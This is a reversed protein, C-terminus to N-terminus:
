PDRQFTWTLAHLCLETKGHQPPTSIVVKRPRTLTSELIEALPALHRPATLHPSVRPVFDLLPEILRRLERVEEDPLSALLEAQDNPPLQSLQEAITSKVLARSDPLPRGRSRGRKGSCGASM